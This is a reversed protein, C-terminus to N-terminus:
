GVLSKVQATLDVDDLWGTHTVTGARDIFVFTSQEVIGFRRWLVGQQDDLNPVNTVELDSVFEHMAKNDGLGAVGLIALRDGYQTKLDTVSSAQGACTACWPAWFWLLAPKGALGAGDFAAGDLTTGTFTLTKPVAAAAGAGPAAAVADPGPVAAGCGTVALLAAATVAALVVRAPVRGDRRAPARGDRGANV